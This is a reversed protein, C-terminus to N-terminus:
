LHPYREHWDTMRQYQQALELLAADTHHRSVIQLGIPLGDRTLGCPLSIAPNGTLNFGCTFPILTALEESPDFQSLPMAPRPTTPTLLLHADASAFASIIEQRLRSRTRLARELQDAPIALGTEIM